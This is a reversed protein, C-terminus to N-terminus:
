LIVYRSSEVPNALDEQLQSIYDDIKSYETSTWPSAAIYDPAPGFEGDEAFQIFHADGLIIGVGLCIRELTSRNMLEGSRGLHPSNELWEFLVRSKSGKGREHLAKDSYISNWDWSFCNAPYDLTV